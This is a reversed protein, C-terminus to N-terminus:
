LQVIEINKFGDLAGRFGPPVVITTEDSEIVAPGTVENGPTLRAFDYLATDIFGDGKFYAAREGKQADGPDVGGLSESRPEFDHIVGEVRSWTPSSPGDPKLIHRAPATCTPIPPMSYNASHKPMPTTM